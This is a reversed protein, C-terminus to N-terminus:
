HFIRCDARDLDCQNPIIYEAIIRDQLAMNELIEKKSVLPSNKGEIAGVFKEISIKFPDEINFATKDTVLRQQYNEGLERRFEMGDFSFAVKRPRDAKHTFKYHIDCELNKNIYKFYIDIEKQSHKLFKIDEAHGGSILKVVMSNAHSLQETLMDIGLAGPQTHMSFNKLKSLDIRNKIYDLVSPWQTNVTLITGQKESLEVLENAAGYNDTYSNLVFPKECLVHLGAELCKKVQVYHMHPPTCISVADISETEILRDLEFYPKSHVGFESLLIEATKAATERSSGLIATVDAGANILERVHFKGISSAGLVAIKLQAM